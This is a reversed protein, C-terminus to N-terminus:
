REDSDDEPAATWDLTADAVCQGFDGEASRSIRVTGAASTESEFRGEFEFSTGVSSDAVILRRGELPYIQGELITVAEVCVVAYQVSAQSVAVRESAPDRVLRFGMELGESTTGAWYGLVPEFSEAEVSGGCAAAAVAAAVLGLAMVVKMPM